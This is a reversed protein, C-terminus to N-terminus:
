FHMWYYNINGLEGLIIYPLKHSFHSQTQYKVHFYVDLKKANHHKVVRYKQLINRQSLRKAQDNKTYNSKIINLADGPVQPLCFFSSQFLRLINAGSAVANFTEASTFSHNGYYKMLHYEQM